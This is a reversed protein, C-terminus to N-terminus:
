FGPEKGAAVFKRGGEEEEEEEEEEGGGRRGERNGGGGRRELPLNQSTFSARDRDELSRTATFSNLMAM